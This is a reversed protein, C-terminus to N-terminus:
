AAVSSACSSTNKTVARKPTRKEPDAAANGPPTRSATPTSAAGSAANASTRRDSADLPNSTVRDRTRVPFRDTGLRPITAVAM